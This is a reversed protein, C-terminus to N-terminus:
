MYDRDDNHQYNHNTSTSTSESESSSVSAGLSASASVSTAFAAALHSMVQMVAEIATARMSLYNKAQEIKNMDTRWSAESESKAAETDAKFKDTSTALEIKGVEAEGLWGDMQSKFVAAQANAKAALANYVTAFVEVKKMAAEFGRLVIEPETKAVDLARQQDATHKSEMVNELDVGAKVFVEHQQRAVEVMKIAIDKSATQDGALFEQRLRRKASLLKGNPLGLDGASSASWDDGVGDLQDQLAQERRLRDRDMLAQETDAGLPTGGGEVGVRLVEKLVERLMSSYPTDSYSFGPMPADVDPVTMEPFSTTPAIPKESTALSLREFEPKNFVPLLELPQLGILFEKLTEITAKASEYADSTRFMSEAFKREVLPNSATPM